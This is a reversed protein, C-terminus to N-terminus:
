SISRLFKNIINQLSTNEPLKHKIRNNVIYRVTNRYQLASRIPNCGFKQTWFATSKDKLLTVDLPNIGKNARHANCVRATRGKIRHVIKSVDDPDCVLVLHMHDRCLNFATITLNLEEVLDCVTAAILEEEDDTMPFVYPYPRIGGFRRQRAKYDIMRQSTRSDHISTVIHFANITM